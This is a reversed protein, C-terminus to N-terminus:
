KLLGLIFGLYMHLLFGKVQFIQIQDIVLLLIIEGKIDQILDVM